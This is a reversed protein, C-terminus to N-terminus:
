HSYQGGGARAPLIQALFTNIAGPFYADLDTTTQGVSGPALLTVLSLYSKKFMSDTAYANFGQNLKSSSLRSEFPMHLNM